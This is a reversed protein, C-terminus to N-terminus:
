LESQFICDTPVIVNHSWKDEIGLGEALVQEAVLDSGQRFEFHSEAGGCVEGDKAFELGEVVESTISVAPAIVGKPFGGAEVIGAQPGM